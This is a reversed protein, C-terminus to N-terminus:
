VKARALHPATSQSEALTSLFAYLHTRVGRVYEAYDTSKTPVSRIQSHRLHEAWAEAISYPHVLDNQNGMILAPIDFSEVEHWSKIPSDDPMHILRARREIARPADFQRRMTNVLVSDKETLNKVEPHMDFADQWKDPGHQNFLRAIIPFLSLNEPLRSDLWAPRILILARVFEPFDIAFRVAVGAGMSVGGIIAQEIGLHNLLERLDSAFQQFCIKSAPGVPHTRGHARADALILRYGSIKGLLAKLAKIDGALGHCMVIPEGQGISEYYFAIGDNNFIPM